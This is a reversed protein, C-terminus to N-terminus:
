PDCGKGEWSLFKDWEGNVYGGRRQILCLFPVCVATGSRGM